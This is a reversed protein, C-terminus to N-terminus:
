KYGPRVSKKKVTRKFCDKQEKSVVEKLFEPVSVLARYKILHLLIANWVLISMYWDFIKVTKIM